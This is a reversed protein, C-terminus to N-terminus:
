VFRVGGAPTSRGLQFGGFTTKWRSVTATRACTHCRSAEKSGQQHSSPRLYDTSRLMIKQVTSLKRAEDKSVNEFAEQIRDFAMRHSESPSQFISKYEEWEGGKLAFFAQKMKRGLQLTPDYNEEGADKAAKM